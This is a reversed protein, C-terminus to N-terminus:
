SIGLLAEEIKAKVEFLFSKKGQFANIRGSQTDLVLVCFLDRVKTGIFIIVVGLIPKWIPEGIFGNILALVGVFYIFLVFFNTKRRVSIGGINKLFYTDSGLVLKATTITVGENQYLINESM